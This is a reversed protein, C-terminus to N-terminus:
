DVILVDCPAQQKLFKAVPGIKNTDTCDKGTRGIILSDIGLGRVLYTAIIKRPDGIRLFTDKIPYTTMMYKLNLDDKAEIVRNNDSYNIMQLIGDDENLYYDEVVRVVYLNASCSEAIKVAQNFARNSNYSGDIGVLINKKNKDM